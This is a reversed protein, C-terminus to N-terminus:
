ASLEPFWLSLERRAEEPTESSHVINELSRKEKHAKMYTDSGFKGRVTEPGADSPQTAGCLARARLVADKGELMVALVKGSAMFDLLRQRVAEGISVPDDSGYMEVPDDNEEHCTRLVSEGVKRRWADDFDYHRDLIEPTPQVAQTFVPQLGHEKVFSLIEDELRHRVADPKIILLTQEKGANITM